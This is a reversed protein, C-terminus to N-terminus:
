VSVLVSYLPYIVAKAGQVGCSLQANKHCAAVSITVMITVSEGNTDTSVRSFCCM